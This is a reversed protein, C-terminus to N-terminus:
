IKNEDIRHEGCWDQEFVIPFGKMTPANRRCRGISGRPDYAQVECVEKDEKYDKVHLESAKKKDVFFVCTRCKMGTSRGAWCDKNM